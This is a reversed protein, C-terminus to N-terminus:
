KKLNERFVNRFKEVKPQIIMQCYGQTPNNKYYNLHYEEAKYFEKFPVIETVVPKCYVQEETLLSKYKEALEKQAESHYFIVSRYQTGTDAGQRNLTTPNHTAWFVELLKSYTIKEPNYAIHIVEAHGTLGTCIEKYTPNQSEGGSYGPEVTLVGELQQFIAEICWFCGAGFTAQETKITRNEAMAFNSILLQAILIFIGGIIHRNKVNM